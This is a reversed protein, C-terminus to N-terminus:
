RRNGPARRSPNRRFHGSSRDDSFRDRRDRQGGPGSYKLNTGFHSRSIGESQTRTTGEPRFDGRDEARRAVRPPPAERPAPAPPAAAPPPVPAAKPAINKKIAEEKLKQISPDKTLPEQVASSVLSGPPAEENGTVVTPPVVPALAVASSTSPQPPLLTRREGTWLFSIDGGDYGVLMMPDIMEVTRRVRWCFAENKVLHPKAKVIDKLEQLTPRKNRKPDRIIARLGQRHLKDAARAVGMAFDMNPKYNTLFPSPKPAPKPEVKPWESEIPFQSETKSSIHNNYLTDTTLLLRVTSASFQYNPIKRLKDAAEKKFRDFTSLQGQNLDSQTIRHLLVLIFGLFRAIFLPDRLQFFFLNPEPKTVELPDEVLSQSESTLHPLIQDINRFVASVDAIVTPLGNVDITSSDGFTYLRLFRLYIDKLVFSEGEVSPVATDTVFLGLGQWPRYIADDQLDLDDLDPFLGALTIPSSSKSSVHLPPTIATVIILIALLGDEASCPPLSSDQEMAQVSSTSLTVQPLPSLRRVVRNMTLCVVAYLYQRFDAVLSYILSKILPLQDKLFCLIYPVSHIHITSTIDHITTTFIRFASVVTGRAPSSSFFRSTTAFSLALLKSSLLVDSHNLTDPSLQLLFPLVMARFRDSTDPVDSLPLAAVAECSTDLSNVTDSSDLISVFPNLSM